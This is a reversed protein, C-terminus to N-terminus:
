RQPRLRHITAQTHMHTAASDSAHPRGADRCTRMGLNSFFCLVTYLGSLFSGLYFTGSLSFICVSVPTCYVLTPFLSFSSAGLFFLPAFLVRSLHFFTMWLVRLIHACLSLNQT